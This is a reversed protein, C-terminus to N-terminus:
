AGAGSERAVMCEQGRDDNPERHDHHPSRDCGGEHSGANEQQSGNDDEGDCDTAHIKVQIPRRIDYPAHDSADRIEAGTHPRPDLGALPKPMPFPQRARGSSPSSARAPMVLPTGSRGHVRHCSGGSTARPRARSERQGVEREDPGEARWPSASRTSPAADRANTLPIRVRKRARVPGSPSRAPVKRKLACMTWCRSSVTM